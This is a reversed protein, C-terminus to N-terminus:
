SRVQFEFTRSENCIECSPIKNENLTEHNSIWLPSGGRSYRIIQEPNAAIVKKFKGFVKDERSEAFESLDAESIESM